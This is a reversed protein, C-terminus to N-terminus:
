GRPYISVVTFRSIKAYILKRSNAFIAIECPNINANFFFSTNNGREPMIIDSYVYMNEFLLMKACWATPPM